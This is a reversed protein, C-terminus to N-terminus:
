SFRDAGYATPAGLSEGAIPVVGTGHKGTSEAILQEVWLGFPELADPLILTLKDRGGAAASGIALGLDVASQPASLMALAWEVLAGVDQGMLAAPVLGFFSM